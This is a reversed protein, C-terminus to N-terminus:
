RRKIDLLLQESQMLVVYYGKRSGKFSDMYQAYREPLGGTDSIPPNHTPYANYVPPIFPLLFLAGLLSVSEVFLSSTYGLIFFM